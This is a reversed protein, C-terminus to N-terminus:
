RLPMGGTLKYVDAPNFYGNQPFSLYPMTPMGSPRGVLYGLGAGVAVNLIGKGVDVWMQTKEADTMKGATQKTFADGTFIKGNMGAEIIINNLQAKAAAVQKKWTSSFISAQGSALLANATSLKAVAAYYEDANDAIAKQQAAQYEKIALDQDAIQIHRMTLDQRLQESQFVARLNETQQEKNAVDAGYIRNLWSNTIDQGATRSNAWAANAEAAIKNADANIKDVEYQKDIQKEKLKLGLADLLSGFANPVGSVPSSGSTGSSQPVSSASAGPTTGALAMKNIGAATYGALTSKIQAEPTLYDEQFQRQRQYAELANEDNIDDEYNMREKESKAMKQRNRENNFINYISDIISAIISGSSGRSNSSNGM